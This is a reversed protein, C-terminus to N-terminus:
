LGLLTEGLLAAGLPLPVNDLGYGLSGEIMTLTAAVAIATLPRLEGSAVGFIAVLVVSVLFFALSGSVSKKGGTVRWEIGTVRTGVRAAAPDALALVLAAFAFAGPHGWAALAALALGIPFLLAGLSPRAVGHISRLSGRLWTYSLFLTFVWALLLVDRLQLYLPFTAATGAGVVHEFQRTSEASVGRHAFSESVAFLVFVAAATALTLLWEM